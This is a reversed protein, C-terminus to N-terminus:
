GINQPQTGVWSPSALSNQGIIQPQTGMFSSRIYDLTDEIHKTEFKIFHLRAGETMKYVAEDGM